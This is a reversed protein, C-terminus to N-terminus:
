LLGIQHMKPLWCIQKAGLSFVTTSSTLSQVSFLKLCIFLNSNGSGISHKSTLGVVDLWYREVEEVFEPEKGGLLTINWKGLALKWQLTGTWRPTDRSSSGNQCWVLGEGKVECPTLGQSLDMNGKQPPDLWTVYTAQGGFPTGSVM